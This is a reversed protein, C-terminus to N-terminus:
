GSRPVVTEIATGRLWKEVLADDFLKAAERYHSTSLFSATRAPERRVVGPAAHHFWTDAGDVIVYGVHNDLGVLYIGPGGARLRALFADIPQDSTHWIPESTVLSRTIHESAQQGLRAREVRFGAHLLTTSVFYGCAIAGTRPVQSTGNMAWPTGNWAPLIEDRLTAVLIERARRLTDRRRDPHDRLERALAVRRAELQERAGGYDISPEPTREASGCAHIMTIVIVRQVVRGM